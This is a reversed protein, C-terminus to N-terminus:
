REKTAVNSKTGKNRTRNVPPKLEIVERGIGVKPLSNRCKKTSKPIPIASNTVQTNRILIHGRPLSPATYSIEMNKKQSSPCSANIEIM